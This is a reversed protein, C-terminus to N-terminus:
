FMAFPNKHCAAEVNTNRIIVGKLRDSVNIDSSEGNTASVTTRRRCFSEINTGGKSDESFTSRRRSKAEVKAQILGSLRMESIKSTKASADVDSEDWDWDSEEDSEEVECETFTRTSEAKALRAKISSWRLPKTDGTPPNPKKGSKKKKKKNTARMRPAGQYLGAPDTLSSREVHRENPPKAQRETKGTLLRFRSSQKAKEKKQMQDGMAANPTSKSDQYHHVPLKM